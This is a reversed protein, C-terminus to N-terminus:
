YFSSESASHLFTLANQPKYEAKLTQCSGESKVGSDAWKIPQFCPQINIRPVSCAALSWFSLKFSFFCNSQTLWSTVGFWLRCTHARVWNQPNKSYNRVQAWNYKGGLTSLRGRQCGLAAFVWFLSASAVCFASLVQDWGLHFGFDSCFVCIPVMWLTWSSARM